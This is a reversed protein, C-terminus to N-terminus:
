RRADIAQVHGQAAYRLIKEDATLIPCDLARATAMLIRDGPDGHITPPMSGADLAITGSVAIEEMGGQEVARALLVVPATTLMIRQRSFLMGIEWATIASYALRDAGEISERAGRRLRASDEIAWILIHTDLLIM